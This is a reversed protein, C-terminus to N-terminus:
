ISFITINKVVGASSFTETFSSVRYDGNYEKGSDLVKVKCHPNIDMAPHCKNFPVLLITPKYNKLVGISKNANSVEYAHILTNDKDPAESVINGDKNMNVNNIIISNFNSIHSVSSRSVSFVYTGNKFGDYEEGYAIDSSDTINIHINRDYIEDGSEMDLKGFIPFLYVIKDKIYTNFIGSDYINFNDNIVSLGEYFGNLPMIFSDKVSTDVSPNSFLKLTNNSTDNFLKAIMTDINCDKTIFNSKGRNFACLSNEDFLAIRLKIGDESINNGTKENADEKINYKRIEDDSFYATNDPIGIMNYYGRFLEFRDPNANKDIDTSTTEYSKKAFLTLNINKLLPKNFKYKSRIKIYDTTKLVMTVFIAPYRNKIFNHIVSISSIEIKTFVKDIDSIQMEYETIYAFDKNEQISLTDKEAM